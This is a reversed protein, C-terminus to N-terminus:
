MYGIYGAPMLNLADSDAEVSLDRALAPKTCTGVEIMRTMRQSKIVARMILISVQISLETSQLSRAPVEKGFLVLSFDEIARM